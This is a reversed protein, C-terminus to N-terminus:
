ISLNLTPETQNEPHIHSVTETKYAHLAANCCIHDWM